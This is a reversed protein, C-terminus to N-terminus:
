NNNKDDKFNNVYESNIFNDFDFKFGLQDYENINFIRTTNLLHKDEKFDRTLYVKIEAKENLACATLNDGLKNCLKVLKRLPTLLHKNKFNTLDYTHIVGNQTVQNYINFTLWSMDRLITVNLLEVAGEEVVNHNYIFKFKIEM